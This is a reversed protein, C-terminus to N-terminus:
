AWAIIDNECRPTLKLMMLQLLTINNCPGGPVPFVDSQLANAWFNDM